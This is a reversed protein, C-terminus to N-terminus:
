KTDVFVDLTWDKMQNIPRMREDFVSLTITHLNQADSTIPTDSEPTSLSSGYSEDVPVSLVVNYNSGPRSCAKVGFDSSVLNISKLGSLDYSSGCVLSSTTSNLQSSNIGTEYYVDNTVANFKFAGQTGNSISMTTNLTGQTVLFTNGTTNLASQLAPMFTDITYNGVPVTATLTSPTTGSYVTVSAKNNTDRINTVTNVGIFKGTHFSVLDDIQDNLMWVPNTTNQNM